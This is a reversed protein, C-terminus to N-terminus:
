IMSIDISLSMWASCLSLQASNQNYDNGVPNFISCITDNVVINMKHALIISIKIQETANNTINCNELEGM